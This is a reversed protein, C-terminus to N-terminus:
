PVMTNILLPPAAPEAGSALGCSGSAGLSGSVASSPVLNVLNFYVTFGIGGAARNVSMCVHGMTVGPVGGIGCTPPGIRGGQSGVTSILMSGAARTLSMARQTPGVSEMAIPEGVTRIPFMIAARRPSGVTWPPTMTTPLGLTM